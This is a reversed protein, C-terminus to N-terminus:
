QSAPRVPRNAAKERGLTKSADLKVEGQMAKREAEDIFSDGNKDGNFFMMAQVFKPMPSEALEERSIKNDNNVDFTLLLQAPGVSNPNRGGQFMKSPDLLLSYSDSLKKDDTVQTLQLLDATGGEAICYLFRDSRLFLENRSVAASAKFPTEDGEIKNTSILKFAPEVQFVFSGNVQTTVIWRDGNKLLSAYTTSKGDKGLRERWLTEGTAADACTFIGSTAVWYLKGDDYIPSPIGPGANRNWLVHSQTVDGTGGMRIAIVKSSAAVYLVGNAAIPTSTVYKGLSMTVWWNLKGTSPDFSWIEEAMPVILEIRGDKSEALIPTSYSGEYLSAEARWVEAGSKADLAILAQSEDCANVIVLNKYVIPSAASGWNMPGSESGVSRQWLPKGNLDFAYVGSKGFFAFVRQGDSVPTSSAYGHDTLFGEYRDEAVPSELLRQWKIEGSKRAVCVLSRLIKAADASSQEKPGPRSFATVFVDEGVVIPSSVGQGPLEVAWKLNSSSSWKAPAVSLSKGDGDPGRFQPWDQANVQVCGLLALVVAVIRGRCSEM